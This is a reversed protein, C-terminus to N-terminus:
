CTFAIVNVNFVCVCVLMHVNMLERTVTEDSSNSIKWFLFRGTLM